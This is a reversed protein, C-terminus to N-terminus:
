KKLLMGLLFAAGAALLVSLYAWVPLQLVISTILLLAITAVGAVIPNRTIGWVTPVVILPVAFLIVGVTQKLQTTLWGRDILPEPAAQVYVGAVGVGVGVAQGHGTIPAAMMQVPKTSACGEVLLSEGSRISAPWLVLTEAEESSMSKHNESCKGWPAIAAPMWVHWDGPPDFVITMRTQGLVLGAELPTWDPENDYYKGTSVFGRPAAGHSQVCTRATIGAGTLTISADYDLSMGCGKVGIQHCGPGLSLTAPGTCQLSDINSWLSVRSNDDGAALTSAGPVCFLYPGAHSVRAPIVGLSPTAFQCGEGLPGAVLTSAVPSWSGDGEANVARVQVSYFNGNKLGTITTTTAVGDHVWMGWDRTDGRSFRVDYGTVASGGTRAPEQWTVTMQRQSATVTPRLVRGPTGAATDRTVTVTYTQTTTRDQATVVVSVANDVETLNISASASGSTTPTGDVTITAVDETATPTVTISSM